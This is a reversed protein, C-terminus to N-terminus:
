DDDARWAETILTGESADIIPPEDETPLQLLDRAYRYASLVGEREAMKNLDVTGSVNFSQLFVEKPTIAQGLKLYAHVDQLRLKTICDAGHKYFDQSYAEVFRDGFRNRTGPARGKPNGSQGPKWSGRSVHKSPKPTPADVTVSGDDSETTTLPDAEPPRSNTDSM